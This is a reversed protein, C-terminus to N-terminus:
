HHTKGIWAMFLGDDIGVIPKVNVLSLGGHLKLVHSLEGAGFWREWKELQWSDYRRFPDDITKDIIALIGGPRMVRGMERISANSNLVHELSEVAFVFDFSNNVFPLATAPALTAYDLHSQKAISLLPKSIDAGHLKLNMPTQSYATRIAGSFRGKGCGVDLVDMQSVNERKLRWEAIAELLTVTRPDETSVTDPFANVSSSQSFYSSPIAFVADLAYKVAWSIEESPFYTAGHGKSGTFGGSENQLHAFVHLLAADARSAFEAALSDGIRPDNGLSSLRYWVMALQSLGTSCVWHVDFYGPVAGDERQLLAVSQMGKKAMDVYGLELLAEQIYAFFHSLHHSQRFDTLESVLKVDSIFLREVAEAVHVIKPRELFDGCEKLPAICLLHIGESIRGRGSPLGWNQSSPVVWRKTNSDIQSDASLWECANALSLRLKSGFESSISHRRALALLGRVAMATDFVFSEGGLGFSGDSQQVNMLTEGFSDSLAHEGAALLSPIFYGTVEPYVTLRASSIIVGGTNPALNGKVWSVLHDVTSSSYLLQATQRRAESILLSKCQSIDDKLMQRNSNCFALVQQQFTAPTPLLDFVTAQGDITVPISISREKAYPSDLGVNSIAARSFIALNFLYVAATVISAASAAGLRM